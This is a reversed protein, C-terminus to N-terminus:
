GVYRSAQRSFMHRYKGDIRMLENHSGSEIVSGDDIVVIHNAMRVTSFRHSIFVVTKQVAASNIRDYLAQENFADLAASPEDLILVPTDAFFARAIAINQWEGGSIDMGEDFTRGLVTDYGSPLEMISEHAGGQQAAAIIGDRDEHRNIDGWGVNEAASVDYKAFDQFVVSMASRVEELDYDRLDRGDMEISGEVPDYLRTMLKILTTKGAGNEGVIALKQNPEIAFSIDKLILPETDPYRFAVNRFEIGKGSTSSLLKATTERKELAGEVSEPNLRLFQFYWTLSLADAVAYIINSVLSMLMARAQEAAITIMTFTGITINGNVAEYVAYLWILAIGVMGIASCLTLLTSEDISNKRYRTFWVNMYKHFGNVLYDKLSFIRVEKAAERIEILRFMYEAMRWDRVTESDLRYWRKVFISEVTMNPVMTMVLVLIAIPHLTSLIAFLSTITIFQGILGMISNHVSTLAWREREAHHLKDYFRPSEFFALDMEAAKELLRGRSKIDVLTNYIGSVIMNIQGVLLEIVWLSLVITVPVLTVTWPLDAKAAEVVADVVFKGTWIVAPPIVAGLIMLVIIAIFFLPSIEWLLRLLRPYLPVVERMAQKFETNGWDEVASM